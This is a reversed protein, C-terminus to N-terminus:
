TMGTVTLTVSTPAAWVPASSVLVMAVMLGALVWSTLRKM